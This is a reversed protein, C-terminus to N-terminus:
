KAFQPHSSLQVRLRQKVCSYAGMRQGYLQAIALMILPTSLKNAPAPARPPARDTSIDSTYGPCMRDSVAFGTM